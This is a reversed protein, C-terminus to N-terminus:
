YPCSCRGCGYALITLNCKHEVLHVLISRQRIHSTVLGCEGGKHSNVFGDLREGQPSVQCLRGQRRLDGTGGVEVYSGPVIAMRCGRPSAAEKEIHEYILRM